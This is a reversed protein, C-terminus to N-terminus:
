SEERKYEIQRLLHQLGMPWSGDAAKYSARIALLQALTQHSRRDERSM